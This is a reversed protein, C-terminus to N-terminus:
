SSELTCLGVMNEAESENVLAFVVFAQFGLSVEEVLKDYARAHHKSELVRTQIPERGAPKEDISSLAMEGYKCMVVAYRYLTSKSLL